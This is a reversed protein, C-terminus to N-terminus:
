LNHLEKLVEEWFDSKIDSPHEETDSSIVQEVLYIAAIHSDRYSLSREFLENVLDEAKEKPTM